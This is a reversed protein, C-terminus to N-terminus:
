GETLRDHEHMWMRVDETTIRKREIGGKMSSNMWRLKFFPVSSHIVLSQPITQM